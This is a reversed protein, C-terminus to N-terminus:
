QSQKHMAGFDDTTADVGKDDIVRAFSMQVYLDDQRLAERVMDASWAPMREEPVMEGCFRFETPAGEAVGIMKGAWAGRIRNRLQDVSIRREEARVSAIMLLTILAVLAPTRMDAVLNGDSGM